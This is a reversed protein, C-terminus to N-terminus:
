HMYRHGIDVSNKGKDQVMSLSPAIWAHGPAVGTTPQIQIEGFHQVEKLVARAKLKLDPVSSAPM